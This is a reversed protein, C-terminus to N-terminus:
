AKLLDVTKKDAMMASLQDSADDVSIQGSRLDQMLDKTNQILKEVQAMELKKEESCGSQLASLLDQTRKFDGVGTAKADEAARQFTVSLNDFIKQKKSLTSQMSQLQDNLSDIASQLYQLTKEKSAMEAAM